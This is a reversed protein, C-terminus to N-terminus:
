KRVVIIEDYQKDFLDVISNCAEDFSVFNISNKVEEPINNMKTDLWGFAITNYIREPYRKRYIKSLLNLGVKSIDYEMSVEDYADITNDSSINICTKYEITEMLKFPVYTNLEFVNFFTEKTKDKVDSTHDIAANNILIDININNQALYDKLQDIEIDNTLDIKYIMSNPYTNHLEEVKDKNTHYLMIVYYGQDLLYKSLHIGLGGSAGTLLVYKM